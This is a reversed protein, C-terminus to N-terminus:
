LLEQWSVSAKITATERSSVALTLTEGPNVIINLDIYNMNQKDNKGSLFIVGLQTGGTITTGATDYEIVSDTTDIDSYSPSGGLTANKLIRLECQNSPQSAEESVSISNILINIFNTKSAYTSKNRITVINTETTINTKSSIPTSFKPTQFDKYRTEGEVFYSYSACSVVLDSTTSENDSFITFRYNPNFSHPETFRNTYYVRHALIFNGTASDELLLEIIGAGLYRFRIVFINLKTHDLTMGSPGSGDLPDLWDEQNVTTLTDNKWRHLGFTTGTYGVALGNKFTESSGTEDMLGIYQETSAVPSTFMATFRAVSGVGANYHGSSVTQLMADSGTTTGTSIVAKANSQTVTGSGTTTNTNQTSNDVTYVFTGQIQPSLSGTLVEGFTTQQTSTTAVPMPNLTGVDIAENNSNIYSILEPM